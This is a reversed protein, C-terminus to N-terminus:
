RGRVTLIFPSAGAVRPRRGSCCDGEEPCEGILRNAGQPIEVCDGAPVYTNGGPTM